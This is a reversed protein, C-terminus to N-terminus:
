GAGSSDDHTLRSLLARKGIDSEKEVDLWAHQCPFRVTIGDQSECVYNHFDSFQNAVPLTPQLWQTASGPSLDSAQSGLGRL